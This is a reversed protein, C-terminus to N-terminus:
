RCDSLPSVGEVATSPVLCAIVKGSPSLGILKSVDPSAASTPTAYFRVNGLESPGPFTPTKVVSGTRFHIEVETAGGVVPGVVYPPLKAMAAGAMYTVTMDPSPKTESTRPVGAIPACSMAAGEGQVDAGKPTVALCLGDTTSRYAVLQWAHGSWEGEKVLVPANVPTPANGSTLFWWDSAAGYAVFPVAVVLAVALALVLRRKTVFRRASTATGARALVDHWDPAWGVAPALTDLIQDPFTTM